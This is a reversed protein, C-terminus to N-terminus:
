VAKPSIWAEVYGIEFYDQVSENIGRRKLYEYNNNKKAELFFDTCDVEPEEKKVYEQSSTNAKEAAKVMEQTNKKTEPKKTGNQPKKEDEIVVGYYDYAKEFKAKDDSLGYYEGILDIIDPHVGCVFCKYHTRERDKTDRVIGDGDSGNGNGCFPCIYGREKARQLFTPEQRKVYEKAEARTM